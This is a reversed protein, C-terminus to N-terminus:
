PLSSLKGSLGTAGKIERRCDWATCEKLIPWFKGSADSLWLLLCHRGARGKLLRPPRLITFDMTHEQQNADPFIM